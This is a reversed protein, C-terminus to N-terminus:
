LSALTPHYKKKQWGVLEKADEIIECIEGDPTVMTDKGYYWNITGDANVLFNKRAQKEAETNKHAQEAM